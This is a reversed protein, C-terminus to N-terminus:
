HRRHKRRPQAAPSAAPSPEPAAPSTIGTSAESAIKRVFRQPVTATIQAVNNKQEIRISEIAAKVDPDAGRSGVTREVARYMSLFSSASDVIRTADNETGAFVDARLHIEGTFRLSVVSITNELFDFSWGGPLQAQQSPKVRAIMWALSATPVHAYHTQLLSPGESHKLRADIIEHMPDSSVMNTVAIRKEDLLAVRVTHGEHAISYIRHDRYTEQSASNKELYGRLRQSDFRGSFIESSETDRGDPTDRRSIAVDDLDREFQIGTADIFQKYEPAVDVPNNQAARQCWHAPACNLYGIIEGEPLLRASEPPGSSREYYIIGVTAAAALLLLVILLKGPKLKHSDPM